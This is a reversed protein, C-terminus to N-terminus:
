KEGRYEQLIYKCRDIVSEKHNSTENPLELANELANALKYAASKYLDREYHMKSHKGTICPGCPHPICHNDCGGPGTGKWNYKTKNM